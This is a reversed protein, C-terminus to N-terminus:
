QLHRAFNTDHGVHPLLLNESSLHLAFSVVLVIPWRFVVKLSQWKLLLLHLLLCVHSTLLLKQILLSNSLVGLRLGLCLHRILFSSSMAIDSHSFHRRVFLKVFIVVGFQIYFDFTWVEVLRSDLYFQAKITLIDLMVTVKLLLLGQISAFMQLSIM